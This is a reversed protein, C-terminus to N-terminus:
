ASSRLKKCYEKNRWARVWTPFEAEEIMKDFRVLDECQMFKVQWAPKVEFLFHRTTKAVSMDVLLGGQYNRWVIDTPYVGVKRIRKLDRLMQGILKESLPEDRTILDKVTARLPSQKEHPALYEDGPRDWQRIKFKRRLETETEAPLMIYGHCGVATKGNLGKEELRGYARCENCFPDLHDRLLELPYLNRVRRSLPAVDETEDYFKFQSYILEEM